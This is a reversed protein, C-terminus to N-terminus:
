KTTDMAEAIVKRLQVMEVPKALFGNIGAELFRSRDDETTQATLAIIPIGATEPGAEGRRIRRAAEVGGMVPMQVDMIVMDYRERRLMELAQRGNIAVNVMCGIHELLRKTLVSNLDDNEALLTRLSVTLTGYPGQTLANGAPLGKSNAIQFSVSFSVTTGSGEESEIYIEGDMLEVLRKCISLGLGAGLFQRTYGDSAQTFPVFLNGFKSEPIGIGTDTVSFLVRHRSADAEQLSAAEVSIKGSKTFKFANGVLNVLVQQLRAPDGLLNKPILSDAHCTFELGAQGANLIFLEHLHRMLMHIDLPEGYPKIDGSELHSLHLIDSLLNTLRRCSTIAQDAYSVQDQDLPTARLLQLMGLIGNMPTRLEHSMNALFVTKARNAAEAAEMAKRLSHEAEKRETIDQVTGHLGTIRGDKERTPGGFANLWCTTRDPRLMELELQYPDGNELTAEMAQELLSRSHPSFLDLVQAITLDEGSPERGSINRFEDSLFCRGTSRNWSWIGIRALKHAQELQDQSKQLQELLLENHERLLCQELGKNIRMYFDQPNLPKSFYGQIRGKNIADVLPDYDSYGTLIYRLIDPFEQAVQELLAGGSMGPMRQDAVLVHVEKSRLIELGEQASEAILVAYDRRFLAKFSNLNDPEDDVYLIVPKEASLLSNM